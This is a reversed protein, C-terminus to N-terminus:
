YHCGAEYRLGAEEIVDTVSARLASKLFADTSAHPTPVGARRAGLRQVLAEFRLGLLAEEEGRLVELGVRFITKLGELLFIDWVRLLVEFPLTTAFVTIFWQSCYMTPVVGERRLHASLRPLGDLYLGQLAEHATGKLLAVLTWFADEEGM